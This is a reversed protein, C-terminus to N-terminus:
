QRRHSFAHSLRQGASTLWHPLLSRLLMTLRFWGYLLVAYALGNAMGCAIVGATTGFAWGVPFAVALGPFL